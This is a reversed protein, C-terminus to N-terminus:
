WCREEEEDDWGDDHGLVGTEDCEPCPLLYDNYPDWGGGVRARSAKGFRARTRQDSDTRKWGTPWSLPSATTTM